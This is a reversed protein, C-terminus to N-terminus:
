EIGFMALNNMMEAQRAVPDTMDIIEKKTKATGGGGGTPPAAPPTGDKGPTGVFDAYDTKVAEVLKARNTIKGDEGREIKSRDFDKVILRLSSERAIGAEKCIAMVDADDLAAKKESEIQQKYENHAKVEAEYKEKYGGDGAAKLNDLEKQVGPLKEADTKYTQIQDKLPDVVGLHLAILRNEIDETHAEGLINRIEARTFKAM